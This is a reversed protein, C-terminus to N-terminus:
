RMPSTGLSMPPSAMSSLSTLSGYGLSGATSSIKDNEMDMQNQRFEQMTTAFRSWEDPRPLALNEGVDYVWIKGTDDGVTVHLGSQTWSVKNLANSGEIVVSASPVETDQNLNWLDLRGTGDVTAFLAPHVPSWAVDYIYDGNDEFSYIPRNEKQSWLKVTWDFSSTLFLHSFDLPGSAGHSSIGTVPGYHGDYLEMVGSKSGHRCASYVSGDESGVIFTNVDVQPQPFTMCTAAVSKGQRHHLELTEQPSALMDLSWSCLKGDTSISVLSHANSTGVVSVCYVPHTHTTATLPSRQVPTKKQSRNDWLVLQGSYTGGLVLNPHFKAFTAATVPSQCHFTYEPSTKKFRTNWILCAGDPDHPADERSHYAALLLEPHQPSWDLCTVCRNKSWKEDCFYRNLSLKYGSKDDLGDESESGGAYDTFIDVNESLAREVVRTSNDFFRQFEESLVLMQKEEESLEKIQRLPEQKAKEVDTVAPKVEKVQPMGSPLIGPPLMNARSGLGGDIPPLSSDEDHDDFTLVPFEDDWELGPNLNYADYYDFGHADRAPGAQTTQTQKAYTVVEKPPVDTTQVVSTVLNAKKRRSVVTTVSQPSSAHAHLSSDPTGQVSAEPTLSNLVDTVPAVGLSSLLADLEKNQDLSTTTRSSFDEAEKRERELRKREKEERLAQLRAKKKELEAKRDAM